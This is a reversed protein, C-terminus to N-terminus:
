FAIAIDTATVLMCTDSDSVALMALPLFCLLTINTKRQWTTMQAFLTLKSTSLQLWTMRM